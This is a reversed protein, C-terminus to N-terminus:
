ARRRGTPSDTTDDIRLRTREARGPGSLPSIPLSIEQPGLGRALWASISAARARARMSPRSDGEISSIRSMASGIRLCRMASVKAARASPSVMSPTMPLSLARMPYGTHRGAASVFVLDLRGQVRGAHRAGKRFGHRAENQFRAPNGRGHDVPQVTALGGPRALLEPLVPTKQRALGR